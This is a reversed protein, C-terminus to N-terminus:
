RLCRFVIGLILVMATGIVMVALMPGRECEECPCDRHHIM